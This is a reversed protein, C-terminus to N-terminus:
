ETKPTTSQTSSNEINHTKAISMVDDDYRNWLKVNNDNTIAQRELDQMVAEALFSSVPSGKPTGFPKCTSHKKPFESSLCLDLLDSFYLSTM